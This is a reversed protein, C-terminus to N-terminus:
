LAEGPHGAALWTCMMRVAAGEADMGGWRGEGLRRCWCGGVEWEGVGAGPWRSDGPVGGAGELGGKKGGGRGRRVLSITRDVDFSELNACEHFNCDDM